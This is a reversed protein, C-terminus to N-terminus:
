AQDTSGVRELSHDPVLKPRSILQEDRFHDQKSVNLSLDKPLLSAIVRLM